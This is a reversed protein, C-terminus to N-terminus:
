EFFWQKAEVLTSFVKTIFNAKELEPGSELMVTFRHQFEFPVVIAIKGGGWKNNQESWIIILKKIANPSINVLRAFSFDWIVNPTPTSGFFSRATEVLEETTLEGCCEQVTYKKKPFIITEIM